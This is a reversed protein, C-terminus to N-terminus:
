GGIVRVLVACVESVTVPPGDHGREVCDCQGLASVLAELDAASGPRIEAARTM